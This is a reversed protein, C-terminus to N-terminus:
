VHKFMCKKNNKANEMTQNWNLCSLNLTLNFKEKIQSGYQYNWIKKM